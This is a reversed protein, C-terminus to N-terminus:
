KSYEKYFLQYPRPYLSRCVLNGASLQDNAGICAHWAIDESLQYKLKALQYFKYGILLSGAFFLGVIILLVNKWM